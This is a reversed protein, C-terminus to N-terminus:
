NVFQGMKNRNRKHLIAHEKKSSLLQLNKIRDDLKNNNKHHIFENKKLFRNIYKEMILTARKMYRKHYANPHYPSYVYIYGNVKIIGGKWASAKNARKSSTAFHLKQRTELSHKKGKIWPIHGKKFLGGTKLREYDLKDRKPPRM